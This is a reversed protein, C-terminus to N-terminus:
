WDLEFRLFSYVVKDHFGGEYFYHQRLTGDKKFGVSELLAVAETNFEATEAYVKNINRYKFLYKILIRVAERAYGNRRQDPDIIAGMAVSQNLPNYDYFSLQGVPVKDAKRVITLLQCEPNPNQKRLEARQSPTQFPVPQCSLYQPESVIFWHYANVIDDSKAARLFVNKGVLSPQAPFIEKKDPM